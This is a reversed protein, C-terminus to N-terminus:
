QHCFLQGVQISIFKDIQEVVAKLSTHQLRAKDITTHDWDDKHLEVDLSACIDVFAGKLVTTILMFLVTPLNLMNYVFM